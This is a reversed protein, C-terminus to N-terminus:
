GVETPCDWCEIVFVEPYLDRILDARVGLPIDTVEPADYIMVIVEEMETRAADIVMQHGRHLPAFKGLTLGVKKM